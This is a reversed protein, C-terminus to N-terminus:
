TLLKLKTGHMVLGANPAYFVETDIFYNNSTTGILEWGRWEAEEDIYRFVEYHSIDFETNAVWDLRVNGYEGSNSSMSPTQPTAPSYSDVVNFSFPERYLMRIGGGFIPEGSAKGEIQYTGAKNVWWGGTQGIMWDTKSGDPYILRAWYHYIVWGNAAYMSYAIPGSGNIGIYDVHASTPESFYINQANSISSFFAILFLIWIM